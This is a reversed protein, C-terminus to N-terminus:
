QNLGTTQTFSDGYRGGYAALNVIGTVPVTCQVRVAANYGNVMNLMATQVGSGAFRSIVGNGPLPVNTESLGAQGPYTINCSGPTATTNSIMFGSSYINAANKTFQAFFVSNSESGAGIANYTAGQGYRTGQSSDNNDENVIAVVRANPDATTVVASGERGSNGLGDVPGLAPISPAYLLWSTGPAIPAPSSVTYTTGAFTFNVTVNTAAAGVNQITLGSNYGVLKRVFRPVYVKNSGQAFGNYSLFQSTAYSAGDKYLAVVVALKTSGDAASVRAGGNFGTPLNANDTSYFVKTSQGPISASEAAASLESGDANYYRVNATVASTSTNQVAFYTQYGAPGKVVQPIFMVPGAQADSFGASTGIRYPSSTTGVGTSQTNVNCAVQTSSSIVGSGTFNTPFNPMNLASTTLWNQSSGAPITADYHIAEASQGERYFTLTVVAQAGADLNQCSIGSAWGGSPGAAQAPSISMAAVALALILTSLFRVKRM